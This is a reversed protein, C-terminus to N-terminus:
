KSESLMLGVIRAQAAKARKEMMISAAVRKWAILGGALGLVFGLVALYDSFPTIPLSRALFDGLLTGGLIGATPLGYAWAVLGLWSADPEALQVRVLQGATVPLGNPNDCQVRQASNDSPLLQVGCGGSSACSGCGILPDLEVEISCNQPSSPVHQSDIARVLGTRIM